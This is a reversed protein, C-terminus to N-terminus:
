MIGDNRFWELLISVRCFIKKEHHHKTSHVKEMATLRDKGMPESLSALDIQFLFHPPGMKAYTSVAKVYCIVLFKSQSYILNHGRGEGSWSQRRYFLLSPARAQTQDCLPNNLTASRLIRFLPCFPSPSFGIPDTSPKSTDRNSPQHIDIHHEEPGSSM